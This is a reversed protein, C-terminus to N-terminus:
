DDNDYEEEVEDRIRKIGDEIFGSVRGIADLCGEWYARSVTSERVMREAVALERAIMPWFEYDFWSVLREDHGDM